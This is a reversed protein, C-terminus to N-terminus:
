PRWSIKNRTLKDCWSISTTKWRLKHSLLDGWTELVRRLIRTSRFLKTTQFTKARGGIELEKFGRVLVKPITGLAGIVIPVVTVGASNKVGARISPNKSSDLLYCIKHIRSKRHIWATKQLSTTQIIETRERIEMEDLRKELSQPVTGLAEVVISVVTVRTNKLKEARYCLELYYDLKEGEKVKVNHNARVVFDLLSSTRKTHISPATCLANPQFTSKLSILQPEIGVVLIFLLSYNSYTLM